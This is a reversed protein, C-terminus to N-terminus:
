AAGGCKGEGCKGEMDTKRAAAHAEHEAADVFGDANADMAAFKEAKGPHAAEFEALSVRGDKDTDIKDIGCKGEGCKGEAKKAKDGGCQGEKAKDEAAAATADQAGLLYGQALPTVSFASGSLLLGGALATGIAVAVPKKNSQIM